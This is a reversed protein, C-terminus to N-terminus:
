DGITTCFNQALQWQKYVDLWSNYNDSIISLSLWDFIKYIESDLNYFMNDIKLPYVNSKNVIKNDNFSEKKVANRIHEVDQPPRPVKTSIRQVLDENFIDSFIFHILKMKTYTEAIEAATTTYSGKQYSARGPVIYLTHLKINDDDISNFKDLCQQILDATPHSKDHLHATGNTKLPNKLIKKDEVRLITKSLRDVHIWKIYTDGVLYHLSWDLFTGGEGGPGFIGVIM